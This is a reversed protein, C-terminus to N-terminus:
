LLKSCICCIDPACVLDADVLPEFPFSEPKKYKLSTDKTMLLFSHAAHLVSLRSTTFYRHVLVCEHSEKVIGVFFIELM